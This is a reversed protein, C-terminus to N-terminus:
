PGFAATEHFISPLFGGFVLLLFYFFCTLTYAVRIGKILFLVHDPGDLGRAPGHLREPRGMYLRHRM